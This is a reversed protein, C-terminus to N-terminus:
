NGLELQNKVLHYYKGKTYTLTEHTGIEVIEGNELVIIQDANKVTSLRHAIVVATKGEFFEELNHMILRENNADLSSTAEDFFLYNPNKYVARAILIRQKQGGSIGIGTSGIKTNFKMPLKNIYEDICAIKAAYQLREINLNTEGVAINEGITGSFIYGDQLVIGCQKRWEDANMESFDMKDIRIDGDQPKYFNLLLKLITSKGSGSNGVIATIKGKPFVINLNKLVYNQGGGDYKFSVNNFTIADQVNAPPLVHSPLTEDERQRIEDLRAFALQAEQVSQSFNALSDIPSSLLGTIYGISLMIGLTIEGNIVWYACLVNITINKIQTLLQVGIGQYVGLQLTRKKLGFIKNQLLQWQEIKKDQANNIKIEVMGYIIENVLNHNESALRFNTYDLQRRLRYFLFIWTISFLSIMTFVLGIKVNYLFLRAGLCITITVSFLTQLIQDSLFSEIHKQDEIRQFIDTPVKIDFFRIPLRVVKLLLQTIMRISINMSAKVRLWGQLWSFLSQGFMLALQFGFISWLISIDKKQIGQDIITQMTKPFIYIIASGLAIVIFIGLFINHQNKVADKYYSLSRKISELSGMYPLKMAAFGNDPELFLVIGKDNSDKWWNEFVERKLKIKGYAPDSVYFHSNTIKYLVVFHEQKWHVICPLVANEKLWETKCLVSVADFNLGQAATLLDGMTVGSRTTQCLDRLYNLSCKKKYYKLIIKLCTAGCDSYELQSYHPFFM